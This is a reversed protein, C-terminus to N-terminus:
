KKLAQALLSAYFESGEKKLHVGDKYFFSDKGKSASFWDVLTANSYEAAVKSLTSNVNNQWKRPVRTNVILIQKVESLSDLLKHLQKSDFSGNTGLEIIIRDDLKGNAKLTDVVVQAQSIQRGIKGDILIGPLLEELYPAADLIVSDGIATVGEGAGIKKIKDDTINPQKNIPPAKVKKVPHDPKIAPKSLDIEIETEVPTFVQVAASQNTSGHVSMALLIVPILTAFFLMRWQFRPKSRMGSWTRSWAGNRIPQEILKYSLTALVISAGLQILIRFMNFGDTNVTSSTLVIVPYHWIYISYSREGLWRLPSCGLIKALQSAPHALVAILIASLISLLLLGGYYLFNGYESTRGIMVLISVLSITGIWDMLNRSNRAVNATLSQSPWAIALAAGILLAFVRTDTGYYVRSPDSGPEYILAMSIVSIVAGALMFLILKGRQRVFKLGLVLVIPWLIYFQEEIALSWLHGIPSSPGFSEFYSVKHFILWWNNFYLMASVFDGQLGLLRSRDILLLWVFVCALMVLMAPLLRRARRIWFDKLDIKRDRRWKAVIQDTILYGSLVFFVGVGLLGGPLWNRNLHYAIVALVSLARLGDLGPMYRGSRNFKEPM